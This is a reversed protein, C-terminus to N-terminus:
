RKDLMFPVLFIFGFWACIRSMFLLILYNVLIICECVTFIKNIYSM